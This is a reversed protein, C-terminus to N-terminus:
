EFMNRTGGVMYIWKIIKKGHTRAELEGSTFVTATLPPPSWVHALPPSPPPHM